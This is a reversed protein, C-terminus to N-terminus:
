KSAAEVFGGDVCQQLTLTTIDLPTTAAADGKAEPERAEQDEMAPKSKGVEAAAATKLEDCREQVATQQDAPVPKGDITKDQALVTFPAAVFLLGAVALKISQM